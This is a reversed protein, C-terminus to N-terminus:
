RARRVPRAIPWFRIGTTGLILKKPVYQPKMSSYYTISYNDYPTIKTLYRDTHRMDFSNFRNDGMMFYCNEPIYQPNGDADNEPFPPMNRQDTFLYMYYYLMDYSYMARIIIEDNEIQESPVEENQLKVIRTFLEGITLKYMINIRYNTDTYANGGIYGDKSLQDYSDIWETMFKRFWKLGGTSSLVRQLYPQYIKGISEICLDSSSFFELLESDSISTNKCYKAMEDALNRCREKAWNFDLANKYNEFELIQQYYDGSVRFDTILRQLAPSENSFDYEAWKLDQDVVKFEPSDKTRSYLIGDIMMLQEGAVGTIRKVLPDAKLKGHEDVNTNVLTFTLMYIIQSVVTKVESERNITYHPNRFVVIDGRHYEKMCPIGVDSLPFKPGSTIKSVAVRDNIMYEPVMSESPIKYFQFLFIQFLLVMFVAQVLADGWDVIEYGFWKIYDVPNVKSGDRKKGKAYMKFISENKPESIAKGTIKKYNAPKFYHQLILSTVFIGLWFIVSILDFAFSTGKAGARRIIFAILFVYPEYQLFKKACFVKQILQKKYVELGLFKVMLATFCLSIIFALTSVDAHFCINLLSFLAAFGLNALIMTNIKKM